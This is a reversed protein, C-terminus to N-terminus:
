NTEISIFPDGFMCWDGINTRGKEPIPKAESITTVFTLFREQENLPIDIPFSQGQKIEKQSFRLQGDVLVYIDALGGPTANDPIGCVSSFRLLRTWNLGKRIADLDITLGQNAHMFICSKEMVGYKLGNLTLVVNDKDSLGRGFYGPAIGLYYIGENRPCEDFTHGVSSIVQISKTSNPVFVGDILPHKCLRYENDVIHNTKLDEALIPSGTGANIAYGTKRTGFGNGGGVIDGLDVYDQGKWVIGVESDIQRVFKSNKIQIDNVVGTNADFRAAQNETLIRNINVFKKSIAFLQIKGKIVHVESSGNVDAQIGFETGYDIFKTTPTNVSFGTGTKPVCTYLRGYDLYMGKREIEFVAPAEILVEVNDDYRIKVIGKELGFSPMKVSLRSGLKLFSNSESWKADMQDILTAVENTLTENRSAFHAYILIFILAAASFLAMFVKFKDIKKSGDSYVVKQILEREPEKASTKISPALKEEEALKTWFEVDFSRIEGEKTLPEIVPDYGPKNAIQFKQLEAWLKIYKVYIRCAEKDTSIWSDLQQFQVETIVDERLAALLDYLEKYEKALM